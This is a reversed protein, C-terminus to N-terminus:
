NHFTRSDIKKKREHIYTFKKNIKCFQAYPLNNIVVFMVIYINKKSCIYCLIVNYM